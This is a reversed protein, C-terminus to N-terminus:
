VGHLFEVTGPDSFAYPLQETLLVGITDARGRRLSRGAPDPGAYGLSRAVELVRSRTEASIQDPRNYANSVTMPSVGAARAVTELTPRGATM